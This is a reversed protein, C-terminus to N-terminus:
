RPAALTRMVRDLGTPAGHWGVLNDGWREMERKGVAAGLYPVVLASLSLYGCNVSITFHFGLKGFNTILNTM